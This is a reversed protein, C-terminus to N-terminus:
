SHIQKWALLVQIAVLLVTTLTLILIDNGTEKSRVTNLYNLGQTTLRYKSSGAIQKKDILDLEHLYDIEKLGVIKFKVEKQIEELGAWDPFYKGFAKFLKNYSKEGLPARM